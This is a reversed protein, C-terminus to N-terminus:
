INTIYEITNLALKANLVFRWNELSKRCFLEREEALPDGAEELLLCM